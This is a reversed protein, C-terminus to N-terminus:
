KILQNFIFNNSRDDEIWKKLSFGNRDKETIKLENSNRINDFNMKLDNDCISWDIDNSFPSIGAECLQSYEGSCLYEITSEKLFYNGHAFGAPIWIWECFNNDTSAPMDYALIKGFYPSGIRIDLVLDVMHGYITRVLKGMFPNWQFHLGRITNIRSFSENAQVVAWQGIENNINKFDRVSYTETFYGRQDTFRAFRVVKIDPIILSKISEIKM